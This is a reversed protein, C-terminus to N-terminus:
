LDTFLEELSADTDIMTVPTDTVTNAYEETNGIDVSNDVDDEVFQPVEKQSMYQMMNPLEVNSVVIFPDASGQPSEPELLETTPAVELAVNPALLETTPALEPAVELAVNPALLETTLALKPALEQAVEPAVELALEPAVDQALEPAVELAVEPAVNPAVNPALEPALLLTTPAVEVASQLRDNTASQIHRTCLISYLRSEVHSPLQDILHLVEQLQEEDINEEISPLRPSAETVTAINVSTNMFNNTENIFWPLHDISNVWDASLARAGLHAGLFMGAMACTNHINCKKSVIMSFVKIMVDHTQPPKERRLMDNALVVAALMNEVPSNNPAIGLRPDPPTLLAIIHKRMGKDKIGRV